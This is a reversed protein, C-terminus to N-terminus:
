EAPVIMPPILPNSPERRQQLKTRGEIIAKM